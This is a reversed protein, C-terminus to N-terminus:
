LIKKTKSLLKKMVEDRPSGSTWGEGAVAIRWEGPQDSAAAIM